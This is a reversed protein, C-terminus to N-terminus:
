GSVRRARRARGGRGRRGSGDGRDDRAIALGASRSVIWRDIGGEVRGPLPHQPVASRALAMLAGVAEHQLEPLSEVPCWRVERIEPSMPRVEDLRAGAAPRARFVTDVRQLRADVVVAPEGVLDIALGVEEKVERRACDAIDERRKVLGGPLGWAERYVLRVLLLAGDDREIVCAAGVTFSPAAARVIWRRVVRPLRRWVQLFSAHTRGMGFLSVM